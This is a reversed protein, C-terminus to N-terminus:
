RCGGAAVECLLRDWEPITVSWDVREASQRANLSLSGALREDALVRRVAAAMGAADGPKVLLATRGHHLLYPIGGADTSVVCLGTAMAELVSVPTNDVNTTNLFIDAAALREPVDQKPVAGTINVREAIGFEGATDRTRQMLGASKDPGIMTLTVDPHDPALLSVVQTAMIPNYVSHFARLWVLQPTPRSRLRFRYSNVDLSNPILRLDQRYERMHDLLYESPTTVVSASALLRRVRRPWRRAFVPLNGGHLTLTFPKRAVRLVKCVAEAWAFAMGSYVAINAVDYQARRLWATFAMDVGRAVRGERSSVTHVTWGHCTLRRALEATATTNGSRAFVDVLLVSRGKGRQNDARV